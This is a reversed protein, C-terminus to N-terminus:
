FRRGSVIEPYSCKACDVKRAM